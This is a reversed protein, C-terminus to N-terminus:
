LRLCEGHPDRFISGHITLGGRHKKGTTLLDSAVRKAETLITLVYSALSMLLTRRTKKLQTHWPRCQGLLEMSNSARLSTSNNNGQQYSSSPFMTLNLNIERRQQRNMACPDDPATVSLQNPFDNGKPVSETVHWIPFERRWM